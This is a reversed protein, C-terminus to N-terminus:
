PHAVSYYYDYLGNKAYIATFSRTHTRGDVTQWSAAVNLEKIETPNSANDAMTRTITFKGALDPNSSLYTSGDFTTTAPLSSITAWSMMRLREMESQIIQAAITTGRALDMQRFGAQMSIISTALGFVMVFAAMAVEIITFGANSGRRRATTGSTCMDGTPDWTRQGRRRLQPLQRQRGARSDNAAVAPFWRHPSGEQEPKREVIKM